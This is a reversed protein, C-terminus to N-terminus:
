NKRCLVRIFEGYGLAQWFLWRLFPKAGPVLYVMHRYKQLTEKVKNRPRLHSGPVSAYDEAPGYGNLKKMSLAELNLEALYAKLTAAAFQYLHLRPYLNPWHERLSRSNHSGYNPVEIVLVGQPMLCATCQNLFTRPSSVHELVHFATVVNFSCPEVGTLDMSHLNLGLDRGARVARESLDIGVADWGAKAFAAVATGAGCGVDLSRPTGTGNTHALLKRLSAALRCLDEPPQQLQASLYGPASEYYESRYVSLLHQKGYRPSTFVLGCGSCKLLSCGDIVFELKFKDNGCLDCTRVAELLNQQVHESLEAMAPQEPQVPQM